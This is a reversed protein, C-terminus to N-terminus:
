CNHRRLHAKLLGAFLSLSDPFYFDLYFSSSIVTARCLMILSYWTRDKRTMVASFGLPVLLDPLKKSSNTDDADISVVFGKSLLDIAPLSDGRGSDTHKKRAATVLNPM